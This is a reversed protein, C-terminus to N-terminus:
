RTRWTFTIRLRGVQFIWAAYGPPWYPARDFLRLKM